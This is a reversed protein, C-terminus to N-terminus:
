NECWEGIDLDRLLIRRGPVLLAQAAVLAADRDSVHQVNPDKDFDRQGDKLVRGLAFIALM